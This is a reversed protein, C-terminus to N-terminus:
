EGAVQTTQRWDGREIGRAVQDIALWKAAHHIDGARDGMAERAASEAESVKARRDLFAVIKGVIEDEGSAERLATVIAKELVRDQAPRLGSRDGDNELSMQDAAERWAEVVARAREEISM